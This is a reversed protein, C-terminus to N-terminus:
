GTTLRARAREAAARLRERREAPIKAAARAMMSLRPNRAFFKSHREIFGWYLGDVEDCWEGAPWAGQKRYYNSGCLYPKTAFIGGDSFIAMGHVNPVMVWDSSDIFLEMFWRYAERPEVELLTMLSGAVMLREIHHAYGYRLAKRIVVDLPPIGTDGKWWAPALRRRHGWFNEREQREGYHRYVGRIFERWGIVQRVFGETSNLPIRARRAEALAAEVVEDPTLLGTNLFPTLVSHFVFDSHRPIADEYPGFERLRERVFRALWARAGERDVPLWSEDARGPHEPFERDCFAIVEDLTPSRAPGDCVPPPTVSAPLALRNDEDFSWQGGTPQGKADVLIKLRRRQSEYFTKMFPRKVGKLYSAFEARSTLFMPSPVIEHEVGLRDLLALLRREFFADEIEFLYLKRIRRARLWTELRAEYAQSEGDGLREYHAALGARKLESAYERMAALFFVIKQRHHRVYTCLERDERLFVEFPQGGAAANLRAPEFLQNGLVLFGNM